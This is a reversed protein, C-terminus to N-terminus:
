KIEKIKKDIEEDLLFDDSGFQLVFILLKKADKLRAYMNKYRRFVTNIVEDVSYGDIMGIEEEVQKVNFLLNM